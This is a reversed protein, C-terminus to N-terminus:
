SYLYVSVGVVRTHSEISTKPLNSIQLNYLFTAVLGQGPDSVDSLISTGGQVCVLWRYSM